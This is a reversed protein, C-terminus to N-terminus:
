KTSSLFHHVMDMFQDIMRYCWDVVQEMSVAEILMGMTFAMTPLPLSVRHVQAGGRRCRQVCHGRIQVIVQVEAGARCWCRQVVDASGSGRCWWWRQVM